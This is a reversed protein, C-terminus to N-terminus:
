PHVAKAPVALMARLELLGAGTLAYGRGAIYGDDDFGTGLEVCGKRALSRVTRRVLGPELGSRDGISRFPLIFEPTDQWASLAVKENYTLKAATHAQKDMQATGTM